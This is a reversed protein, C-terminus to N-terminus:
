MCRDVLEGFLRQFPQLAELRRDWPLRDLETDRAAQEVTAAEVLRQIPRTSGAAVLVTAHRKCEADFANHERATLAVPASEEVFRPCCESVYRVSPAVRHQSDPLGLCQPQAALQVCHRFRRR